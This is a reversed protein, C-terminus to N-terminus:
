SREGEQAIRCSQRGARPDLHVPDRHTEYERGSGTQLVPGPGGVLRDHRGGFERRGRQGSAVEM